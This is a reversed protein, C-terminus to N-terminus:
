RKTFTVTIKDKLEIETAKRVKKPLAIFHTGDGMPLLSSDWTEGELELHVPILGRIGNKPLEMDKPIRIFHWGLNGPFRDVFGTVTYKKM